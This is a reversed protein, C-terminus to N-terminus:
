SYVGFEARLFRIVARRTNPGFIGDVTLGMDFLQQIKIVAKKTKKGYFGDVKLLDEVTAQELVSNILNQAVEVDFGSDGMELVLDDDDIGNKYFDFEIQPDLITDDIIDDDVVEDDKNEIYVKLDSRFQGMDFSPCAKGPDYEYHGFVKTYPIKFRTMWDTVVRLLADKQEPTRTDKPKQNSDVGGIYCVALTDTNHGYVHAGIHEEVNGDNDPDRGNQITGDLLVVKHYGISSWGRARHWRDIDSANYYRGEKTAACHVFIKKPNNKTM